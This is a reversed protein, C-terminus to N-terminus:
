LSLTGDEPRLTSGEHLYLFRELVTRDEAGLREFEIGMGPARSEGPPVTQPPVTRVVRGIVHVNGEHGPLPFALACRMGVDIPTRTQVFIGSPSLDLSFGLLTIDAGDFYVPVQVPVRPRRLYCWVRNRGFSRAEELAERARALLDDPNDADAPFSAAGLSLTVQLPTEGERHVFFRFREVASRLRAAVQRAEGRGAGALLLAFDDEQLRAVSDEDEVAARLIGGIKRLVESGAAHGLRDNIRRLHDVDALVVAIPKGISKAARLRAELRQVFQEPGRLGTLTDVGSAARQTDTEAWLAIVRQVSVAV